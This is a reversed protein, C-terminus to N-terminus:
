LIDFLKYEHTASEWRIAKNEIRAFETGKKCWDIFKQLADKTGEATIMRANRLMMSCFSAFSLLSLSSTVVANCAASFYRIASIAERSRSKQQM